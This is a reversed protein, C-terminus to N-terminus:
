GKGTGAKRERGRLRGCAKSTGGDERRGLARGALGVLTIKLDGRRAAM